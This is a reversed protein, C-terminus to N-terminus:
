MYILCLKQNVMRCSVNLLHMHPYQSDKVSVFFKTSLEECVDSEAQELLEDVGAGVAELTVASKETM